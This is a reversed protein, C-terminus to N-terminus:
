DDDDDEDSIIVVFKCDPYAGAQAMTADNRCKFRQEVIEGDENVDEVVLLLRAAPYEPEEFGFTKCAMALVKEVTHKGKTKFLGSQTYEGEGCEITVIFTKNLDALPEHRHNEPIEEAENVPSNDRPTFPEKKLPRQVSGARSQKGTSSTEEWKASASTGAGSVPADNPDQITQTQVEAVVKRKTSNSSLIVADHAEDYSSHDEDSSLNQRGSPSSARRAPANQNLSSDQVSNTARIAENKIDQNQNDEVKLSIRGLLPVITGWVDKHIRVTLGQHGELETTEFVVTANRPINFEKRVLNRAEEFTHPAKVLIRTEGYSIVILDEDTERGLKLASSFRM